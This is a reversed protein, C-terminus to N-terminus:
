PADGSDFSWLGPCSDSETEDMYVDTAPTLSEAPLHAHSGVVTPSFLPPPNAMLESWDFTETSVQLPAPAPVAATGAWETVESSPAGTFSTPVKNAHSMAAARVEEPDTTLGAVAPPSGPFNLGDAGGPGRLCVAAGDFARAAKEPTDYSGLWIRERSNPLRIESAWRGWKRRRVGKYKTEEGSSSGAHPQEPPPPLSSM